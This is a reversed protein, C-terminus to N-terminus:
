EQEDPDTSSGEADLRRRRAELYAEAADVEEQTPRYDPHVPPGSDPPATGEDDEDSEGVVVQVGPMAHPLLVTDLPLLALLGSAILARVDPPAMM